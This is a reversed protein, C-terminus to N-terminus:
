EVELSELYLERGTKLELGLSSCQPCIFLHKETKGAWGCSMCEATLPIERILLEAGEVVTGASYVAFASQLAEPVANTMEGVVLTVKTVRSEELDTTYQKIIDFVGAMLAMEHM